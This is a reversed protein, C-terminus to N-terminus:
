LDFSQRVISADHVQSVIKARGFADKPLVKDAQDAQQRKSNPNKARIELEDLAKVARLRESISESQLQERTRARACVCM